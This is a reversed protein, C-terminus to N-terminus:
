NYFQMTRKLCHNLYVEKKHQGCKDNECCFRVVTHAAFNAIDVPHLIESCEECYLKELLRNFRNILGIFQYYHGKPIFDGLRNTENTNLGLIECFDVLTYYMWKEHNHHTECNGYCEKNACRWFESKFLKDVKNSM